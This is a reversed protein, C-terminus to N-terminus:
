RRGNSVMPKCTGEIFEHAAEGEQRFHLAKGCFMVPDLFREYLWRYAALMHCWGVMTAYKATIGARDMVSFVSARGPAIRELEAMRCWYM